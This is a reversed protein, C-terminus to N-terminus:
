AGPGKLRRRRPRRVPVTPKKAATGRPPRRDRAPLSATSAPAASLQQRLTDIERAYAARTAEVADLRGQLLGIQHRADGLQTRLGEAETRHREDHQEARRLAADLAKQLRAVTAREREIELLARREAAGLRQEARQAAERLKELDQAFDARAQALAADRERNEGQLRAVDGELARRSAESVALATELERIRAQAALLAAEREARAADARAMAEQALAIEQRGAEREADLEGRLAELAAQAAATSKEWLAAVLDGAAAQLDPPLDPREVRVRSKERLAAWFEALVATPTGMSGRRVLQYLRNATPTIGFRFFLLACVERYLERTNPQV